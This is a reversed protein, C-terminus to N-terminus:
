FIQISLNDLDEVVVQLLGEFVKEPIRQVLQSRFQFSEHLYNNPIEGGSCPLCYSNMILWLNPISHKWDHLSIKRRTQENRQRKM